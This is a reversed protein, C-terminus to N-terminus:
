KKTVEIIKPNNKPQMDYGNGSKDKYPTEGEFDYHVIEKGDSIKIDSISGKLRGWSGNEYAGILLHESQGTQITSSGVSGTKVLKGDISLKITKGDKEVEVKHFKGDNTYPYDM